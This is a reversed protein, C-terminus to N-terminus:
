REMQRLREMEKEVSFFSLSKLSLYHSLIGVGWGMAAFFAWEIKGNNFYDTAFFGLTFLLYALLHSKFKVIEKAKKRLEKETM